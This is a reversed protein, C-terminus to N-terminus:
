WVDSLLLYTISRESISVSKFLARLFPLASYATAVYTCELMSTLPSISGHFCQM